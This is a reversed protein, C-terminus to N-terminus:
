PREPDASPELRAEPRLLERALARGLDKWFPFAVADYGYVGDNLIGNPNTHLCGTIFFSRGSERDVVHANEITFGYALGVKDHVDLAAAPTVERLGPLLFKVWDDTYKEPDYLPNESERPLQRLAEVIFARHDDRLRYGPIGLDIDPRVTSIMANQLDLLSVSNKGTFDMPGETVAEGRKVGRGIQLGSWAASDLRLPSTREPVEIWDGEDAGIEIRPTRLNETPTRLESLRHLCRVTPFGARWARRHIGEHGILGLLRNHARNDSVICLKRVEHGITITGGDLNSPDETALEEDEFCPHIRLPSDTTPSSEPGRSVEGLWELAGLAAFLKVTSAPYFYEADLRFSDRALTPAGGEASEIVESVLLQLRLAGAQDHLPALTPDTSLLASLWGEQVTATEGGGARPQLGQCGFASLALLLALTLSRM